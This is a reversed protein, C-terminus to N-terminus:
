MRRLPRKFLQSPSGAIGVQTPSRPEWITRRPDASCIQFRWSNKKPLRVLVAGRRQLIGLFTHPFVSISKRRSINIQRHGTSGARGVIRELVSPSFFFCPIRTTLAMGLGTKKQMLKDCYVVCLGRGCDGAKSAGFMVCEESLSFLFFSGAIRTPSRSGSIARRPDAKNIKRFRPSFSQLLLVAQTKHLSAHLFSTPPSINIKASFYQNPPQWHEWSTRSSHTRHIQPRQPFLLLMSYTYNERTQTQQRNKKRMLKDCDVVSLGSGFDGAKSCGSM